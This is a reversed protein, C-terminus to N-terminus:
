LRRKYSYYSQFDVANTTGNMMNIIDTRTWTDIQTTDNMFNTATAERRGNRLIFEKYEQLTNEAELVLEQYAKTITRGEANIQIYGKSLSKTALGRMILTKTQLLSAILLLNTNSTDFDLDVNAMGIRIFFRIDVENPFDNEDFQLFTRMEPETVYLVEDDTQWSNSLAILSEDDTTENYFTRKYYYDATSATYDYNTYNDAYSLETTSSAIETYTGNISSCEYFKMQNYPLRFIEINASHSFKLATITLDTNSSVAADIRVIESKETSPAIVIYDDDAFGETNEIILTTADAAAATTIISSQQGSFDYNLGRLLVM